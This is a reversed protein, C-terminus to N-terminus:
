LRAVAKYQFALSAATNTGTDTASVTAGSTGINSASANMSGGTMSAKGSAGASDYVTVAPASRMEVPFRIMQQMSRNASSSLVDVYLALSGTATATGPATGVNYSKAYYRQTLRQEDQHPSFPLVIGGLTMRGVMTLFTNYATNGTANFQRSTGFVGPSSSTVWAGPTTTQFTSGCSLTWIVRLGIGTDYDWTGASPSPPVHVFHLEWTDAAEVFYPMVCSRDGGSNVFAVHYVGIAPQKVWFPLTFGRQLLRKARKGEIRQEYICYDGAAIAADATTVDLKTSYLEKGVTEAVAPVDTDQTVTHVVAGVKGYRFMEAAYTGDAITAFSTGDNWVEMGGNIIPNEIALAEGLSRLSYSFQRNDILDVPAITTVAPDVIVLALPIDWTTASQTLATPVASGSAAATGDLMRLTAAGTTLDFRIIVRDIRQLTAHATTVTLTYVGGSVSADAIKAFVGKATVRGQNVKVQMGSSDATVLLESTYAGLIDDGRSPLVGPPQRFQFQELYHDFYSISPDGTTGPWSSLTLPGAM